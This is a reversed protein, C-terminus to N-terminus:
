DMSYTSVIHQMWKSNKREDRHWISGIAEARYQHIIDDIYDPEYRDEDTKLAASVIRIVSERVQPLTM